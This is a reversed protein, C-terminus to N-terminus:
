DPDPLQDIAPLVGDLHSLMADRAGDSDKRQIADLVAEHEKIVAVMRDPLALTLHRFRDVQTKVQLVLKWIGPFGSIEAIQSHFLEDARHFAASDDRQAAERQQEVVSALILTQSRTAKDAALAATTQELAKRIVMAEPLAEYPIRAVFTGSQPFIEVLSEDALRQIAERVPTRSIGFRRALESESIKHGPSLKM